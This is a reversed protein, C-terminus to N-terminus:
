WYIEKNYCAECYVKGPYNKDYVSLMEEGCHDCTRLHMERPQRQALREEHRVDPHKRPLPLNHKRYFDLEPKIIRFPRKSVECIFIKKLIDDTVTAIDTPINEWQLVDVGEPVVPDYNNDQRTYWKELAEERTLPFYEQAVTENYCFPALSHELFEWWEGTEQMHEILKPVLQEYEEKTYQKNFICYSKNRLGSCGFIHNSNHINYSYLVHQSNFIYYWCICDHATLAGLTNFCLEPWVYMNDCDVCNKAKEAVSIYSCNEASNVAYWIKIANSDFLENGYSQQSNIIEAQPLIMNSRIEKFRKDNYEKQQWVNQKKFFELFEEKTYQKNEICYSKNVLWTCLYCYSCWQLGESLYCEHCEKSQTLYFCQTCKKCNVCQYTNDCEFLNEGDLSDKCTQYLRGYMCNEAYESACILYCNKCYGTGTTFVSNECGVTMVGIHPVEQILVEFQEMFTKSFDIDKKYDMPDWEDSRWFKQDYIKYWKDPSYISIINEGSADCKRKYLKRENRFM